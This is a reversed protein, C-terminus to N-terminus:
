SRRLNTVVSMPSARRHAVLPMGHPRLVARISWVVALSLLGLKSILLVAPISLFLLETLTM